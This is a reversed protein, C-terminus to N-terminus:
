RSGFTESQRMYLERYKMRYTKKRRQRENQKRKKKWMCIGKEWEIYNRFAFKVAYTTHFNTSKNPEFIGFQLWRGDVAIAVIVLLRTFFKWIM